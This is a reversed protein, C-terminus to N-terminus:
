AALPQAPKDFEKEWRKYNAEADRIYPSWAILALILRNFLNAPFRLPRVVHVGLRGRLFRM